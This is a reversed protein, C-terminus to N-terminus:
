YIFGAPQANDAETQVSIAGPQENFPKRRIWLIHHDSAIHGANFSGITKQRPARPVDDLNVVRATLIAADGHTM